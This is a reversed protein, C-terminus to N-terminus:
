SFVLNKKRQLAAYEENMCDISRSYKIASKYTKPELPTSLSATFALPIPHKLQMILSLILLYNNQYMFIQNLDPSEELLM